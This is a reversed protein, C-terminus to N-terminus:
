IKDCLGHLSSPECTKRGGQFGREIFHQAWQAKEAGIKQLVHLNQFM